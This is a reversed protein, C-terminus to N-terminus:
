AHHKTEDIALHLLPDMVIYLFHWLKPHFPTFRLMYLTLM